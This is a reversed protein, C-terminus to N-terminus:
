AYTAMEVGAWQFRAQELRGKQGADQHMKLHDWARGEGLRKLCVDDCEEFVKREVACFVVVVVVFSLHQDRTGARRVAGRVKKPFGALSSALPECNKLVGCCPM